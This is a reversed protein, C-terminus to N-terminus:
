RQKITDTSKLERSYRKERVRKFYSKTIFITKTVNEKFSLFVNKFENLGTRPKKTTLFSEL